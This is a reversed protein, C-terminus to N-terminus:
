GAVHVQQFPAGPQPCWVDAMIDLPRKLIETGAFAFRYRKARLDRPSRNGLFPYIGDDFLSTSASVGVGKRTM